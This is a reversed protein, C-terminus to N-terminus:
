GGIQASQGEPLIDFRLAAKLKKDAKTKVRKKLTPETVDVFPKSESEKSSRALLEESNNADMNVKNEPRDSFQKQNNNSM